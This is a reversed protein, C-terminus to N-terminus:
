RPAPLQQVSNGTDLDLIVISGDSQSQAVQSYQANFFTQESDQLATRWNQVPRLDTLAIGAVAANRLDIISEQLRSGSWSLQPLLDRANSIEELSKFRQGPRGSSRHAEASQRYADYLRETATQQSALLARSQQATLYGFRLSGAVVIM